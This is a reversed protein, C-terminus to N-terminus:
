LNVHKYYLIGVLDSFLHIISKYKDSDLQNIFTLSSLPYSVEIEYRNSYFEISLRKDRNFYLYIGLAIDYENQLDLFMFYKNINKSFHYIILNQYRCSSIILFNNYKILM